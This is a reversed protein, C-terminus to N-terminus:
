RGPAVEDPPVADDRDANKVLDQRVDGIAAHLESIPKALCAVLPVV